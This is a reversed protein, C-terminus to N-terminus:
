SMLSMVITPSSRAFFTNWSCPVLGESAEILADLIQVFLNLAERLLAFGASSQHSLESDPRQPCRAKYRANAGRLAELVTAL